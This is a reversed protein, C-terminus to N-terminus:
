FDRFCSATGENCWVSIFCPAVAQRHKIRAWAMVACLLDSLLFIAAMFAALLINEILPKM